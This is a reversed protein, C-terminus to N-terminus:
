QEGEHARRADDVASQRSRVRVVNGQSSCKARARRPSSQCSLRGCARIKMRSVCLKSRFMAIQSYPMAAHHVVPAVKAKKPPMKDLHGRWRWSNDGRCAVRRPVDDLITEIWGRVRSAAETATTWLPAVVRMVLPIDIAEVPLTGIIPFCYNSRSCGNSPANPM